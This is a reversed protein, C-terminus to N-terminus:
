MVVSIFSATIVILLALTLTYLNVAGYYFGLAAGVICNGSALVLTRPRAESIWQNLM